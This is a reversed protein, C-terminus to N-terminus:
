MHIYINVLDICKVDMTFFNLFVLHLHCVLWIITVLSSGHDLFFFGGFFPLWCEKQMRLM